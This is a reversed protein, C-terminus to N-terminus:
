TVNREYVYSIYKGGNRTVMIESNRVIQAYSGLPKSHDLEEGACSLIQEHLPIDLRTRIVLKLSSVAAYLTIMMPVKSRHQTTVYVQMNTTVSVFSGQKIGYECLQKADELPTLNEFGLIPEM